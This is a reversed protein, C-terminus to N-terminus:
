PTAARLENLEWRDFFRGIEVILIAYLAIAFGQLTDMSVILGAVAGVEPGLTKEFLFALARDVQSRVGHIVEALEPLTLGGIYAEGLKWAINKLPMKETTSAMVSFLVGLLLSLRFYGWRAPHAGSTASIARLAWSGLVVCTGFIVASFAIREWDTGLFVFLTVIAAFVAKLLVEFVTVASLIVMSAKSPARHFFSIDFPVRSLELYLGVVLTLAGTAAALGLPSKFPLVFLVVIISLEVTFGSLRIFIRRLVPNGGLHRRWSCFVAASIVHGDFIPM